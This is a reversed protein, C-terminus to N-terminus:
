GGVIAIVVQARARDVIGGKDPHVQTAIRYYLQRAIKLTMAQGMAMNLVERVPTLVNVFELRTMENLVAQQAPGHFAISEIM